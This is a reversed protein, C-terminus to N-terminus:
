PAVACPFPNVGPIGSVFNGEEMLDGVFDPAGIVGDWLWDSMAVGEVTGNYLGAGLSVVHVSSVISTLYYQIGNLNRTDCV